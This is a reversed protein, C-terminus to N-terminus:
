NRHSSACFSSFSRIFIREKKQQFKSNVFRTPQPIITPGRAPTDARIEARPVWIAIKRKSLGWRDPFGM